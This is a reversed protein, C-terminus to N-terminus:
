SSIVNQPPLPLLAQLTRLTVEPNQPHSWTRVPPRCRQRFPRFGSGFSAASSFVVQRQSYSEGTPPFHFHAVSYLFSGTPPKCLSPPPGPWVPPQHLVHIFRLFPDEGPKIPQKYARISSKNSLYSSDAAASCCKSVRHDTSRRQSILWRWIEM